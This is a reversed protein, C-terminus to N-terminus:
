SKTKLQNIQIQQEKIAQILLAVIKEYRVAKSGNEREIVIEPLVKEIEQAIVGVDHGENSHHDVKEEDTLSIWDFEVGRIKDIKDLANPIEVVNEKYNIDSTAFAVVDNGASIRGKTRNILNSFGVNLSGSILVDGISELISGSNFTEKLTNSGTIAGNGGLKPILSAVDNNILISGATGQAGSSGAAGQAGQAGQNGQNGQAGNVGQAGQPGAAGKQGKTGNKAFQVVISANNSFSGNLEVDAALLDFLIRTGDVTNISSSAITIINSTNAQDYIIFQSQKSFLNDHTAGNADELAISMATASGISTTNFNVFGAFGGTNTSSTYNYSLGAIEGQAGKEGNTGSAGQAGTAGSGPAGQAGGTGAIGQAGNVGQAGIEGKQGKEGKDGKDGQNGQTGTAGQAGQNGQNGQNGQAGPAGTSGQSGKPGVPGAGGTTGQAGKEGNTGQTGTAGQIGQNGQNGQPGTAGQAGVEGKQGKDGQPGTAGQAGKSGLDGNAGQAGLGGKEGIPGQAGQPGSQADVWLSGSVTSSLVQGLTGTNDNTDHISQSLHISGSVQISNDTKLSQLVGDSGSILIERWNAM